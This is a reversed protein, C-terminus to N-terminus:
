VELEDTVDFYDRYRRSRERLEGVPIGTNFRGLESKGIRAWGHRAGTLPISTLGHITM